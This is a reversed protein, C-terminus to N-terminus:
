RYLNDNGDIVNNEMLDHLYLTYFAIGFLALDRSGLHACLWFVFRGSPQSISFFDFDWIEYTKQMLSYPNLFLIESLIFPDTKNVYKILFSPKPKLPSPVSPASRSANPANAAPQKALLNIRSPPSWESLVGEPLALLEL